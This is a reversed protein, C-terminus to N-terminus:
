HSFSNNMDCSVATYCIFATDEGKSNIHMKLELVTM